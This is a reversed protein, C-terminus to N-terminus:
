QQHMLRMLHFLSSVLALEPIEKTRTANRGRCQEPVDEEEDDSHSNPMAKAGMVFSMVIFACEEPIIFESVCHEFSLVKTYYVYM